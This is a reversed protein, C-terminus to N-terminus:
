GNTPRGGYYQNIYSLSQPTFNNGIFPSLIAKCINGSGFNYDDKMAEYAACPGMTLLDKFGPLRDVTELVAPGCRAKVGARLAETRFTSVDMVCAAKMVIFNIYTTDSAATPDPTISCSSISVTYSNSYSVDQPFLHAAVILAQKLRGDSYTPTEALDNILVRLMPIAEDQWAM